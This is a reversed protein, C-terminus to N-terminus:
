LGREKAYRDMFERIPEAQKVREKECAKAYREKIDTEIRLNFTSKYFSVRKATAPKSVSYTTRDNSTTDKNIRAM